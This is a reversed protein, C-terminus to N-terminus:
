AEGEVVVLHRVKVLMGRNSPTDQIEVTQHIRRLGLTAVTSRQDPPRGIVSRVLTVKLVEPNDTTKKAM